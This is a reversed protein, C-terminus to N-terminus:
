RRGERVMAKRCKIMKQSVRQRVELDEYGIDRLEQLLDAYEEETAPESIEIVWGYDAAGHQGIHQYSRCFTGAVNGPFQPFLAIIDGKELKRFIVKITEIRTKDDSTIAQM